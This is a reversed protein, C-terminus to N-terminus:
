ADDEDVKVVMNYLLMITLMWKAFLSAITHHNLKKGTAIFSSLPSALSLIGTQYVGFKTSKIIISGNLIRLPQSDWHSAMAM